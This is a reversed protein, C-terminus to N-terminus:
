IFYKYFKLRKREGCGNQQIQNKAWARSRPSLFELIFITVLTENIKRKWLTYNEKGFHTTLSQM